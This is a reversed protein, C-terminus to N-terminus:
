EFLELKQIELNKAILKTFSLLRMLRVIIELNLFKEFFVINKNKNNSYNVFIKLINVRKLKNAFYIILEFSDNNINVFNM